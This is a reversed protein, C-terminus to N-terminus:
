KNRMWSPEAIPKNLNRSNRMWSPEAYYKKDLFSDPLKKKDENKKFTHPPKGKMREKFRQAASKAM